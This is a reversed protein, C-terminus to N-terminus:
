DINQKEGALKIAASALNMDNEAIIVLQKKAMWMQLLLESENFGERKKLLKYFCLFKENRYKAFGFYL